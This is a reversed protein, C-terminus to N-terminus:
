HDSKYENCDPPIKGGQSDLNAPECDAGAPEVRLEKAPDMGGGGGGGGGGLLENGLAWFGVIM